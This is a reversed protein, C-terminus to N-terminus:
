WRCSATSNTTSSPPTAPTRPASTRSPSCRTTTSDPTSRRGQSAARDMSWAGYVKRFAFICARVYYTKLAAGKAPNWRSRALANGRFTDMGDLVSDTVVEYRDEWTWPIILGAPIPCGALRAQRFIEENATWNLLVPWAYEMLQGAFRNFLPGTFDQVRLIEVVEADRARREAREPRSEEAAHPALLAEFRDLEGELAHLEADDTTPTGSHRATGAAEDCM